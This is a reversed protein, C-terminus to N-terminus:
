VRRGPPLLERAFDITGNLWAVDRMDLPWDSSPDVLRLLELKLFGIRRNLDKAAAQNPEDKHHRELRWIQNEVAGHYAAKIRRNVDGDRWWSAVRNFFHEVKDALRSFFGRYAPNVGYVVGLNPFPAGVQVGTANHRAIVDGDVEHDPVQLTAFASPWGDREARAAAGRFRALIDDSKRDLDVPAPAPALRDHRAVDADSDSGTRFPPLDLGGVVLAALDPGPVGDRIPSSPYHSDYSPPADAHSKCPPPAEGGRFGAVAHNDSSISAYVSVTDVPVADGHFVRYGDSGASSRDSYVM